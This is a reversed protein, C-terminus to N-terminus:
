EGCPKPPKDPFLFSVYGKSYAFVVEEIMSALHIKDRKARRMAKLYDKDTIKYARPKRPTKNAKM